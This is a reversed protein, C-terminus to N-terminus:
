LFLCKLEQSLLKNLEILMLVFQVYAVIPSDFMVTYTWLENVKEVQNKLNLKEETSITKWQNRWKSQVVHM